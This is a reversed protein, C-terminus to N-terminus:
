HIKSNNNIYSIWQLLKRIDFSQLLPFGYVITNLSLFINNLTQRKNVHNLFPEQKEKRICTYLYFRQNKLKCPKVSTLFFNNPANDSPDFCITRPHLPTDKLIWATHTHAQNINKIRTQILSGLGTVSKISKKETNWFAMYM